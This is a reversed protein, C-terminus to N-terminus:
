TKKNFQFAREWLRAIEKSALERNSPLRLSSLTFLSLLRLPLLIM